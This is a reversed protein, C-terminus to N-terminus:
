DGGGSLTFPRLAEALKEPLRKPKDQCSTCAHLTSAELLLGRPPNLVRYRFTLRVREVRELWLEISLLDDYRAAGRHRLRCEVVPFITDQEQWQLFAQGLHRFFEGRAAELIDLYRAHYVHNGLTCDAYTVRHSCRFVTEPLPRPDM